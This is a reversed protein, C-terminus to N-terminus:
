KLSSKFVARSNNRLNRVRGCLFTCTDQTLIAFHLLFALVDYIIHLKVLIINLVMTCGAAPFLAVPKDTKLFGALANYFFM